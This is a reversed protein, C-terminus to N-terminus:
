PSTGAKRAEQVEQDLDEWAGRAGTKPRALVRAEGAANAVVRVEVGACNEFASAMDELGSPVRQRTQQLLTILRKAHREDGDTVFTVATGHRGARGCRGIRHVYSDMSLGLSFNVVHGVGGIDLGRAAVDTAVLVSAAADRFRRLTANRAAQSMDGHLAHADFGEAKLMKALGKAEAKFLVFVLVKRKRLNGLVERLRRARAAKPVLEVEQTITKPIGDVTIRATASRLVIALSEAETCWTASFLMAQRRLAALKALSLVDETFGEELLRDGEDM